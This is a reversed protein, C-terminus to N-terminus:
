APLQLQAPLTGALLSPRVAKKGAPKKYKVTFKTGTTLTKGDIQERFVLFAKLKGAAKLKSLGAKNLKVVINKTAGDPIDYSTSGLVKPKAKSSSAEETVSIVNGKYDLEVTVKGTCRSHLGIGQCHASTVIKRNGKITPLKIPRAAPTTRQIPKGGEGPTTGGGPTSGGGGPSPDGGGDPTSSVIGRILPGTAANSIFDYSDGTTPEASPPTSPYVGPAPHESLNDVIAHLSSGGSVVTLGIRDGAAITTPSTVEQTTIIPASSPAAPLLMTMVSQAVKIADGSDRRFVYIRVTVDATNWHAVSVETLFGDESAYFATSGDRNGSQWVSYPPPQSLIGSGSVPVEELNPVGVTSGFATAPLMAAVAAVVAFSLRRM